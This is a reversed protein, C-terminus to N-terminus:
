RLPQDRAIDAVAAPLSVYDLPSGGLAVIRSLSITRQTGCSELKHAPLVYFHWQSMDLPDVSSKDKHALLAFVYVDAQRKRALEYANSTADFARTPAITFSIRSLQRQSWTQVYASSKVEIKLGSEMVLDYAAWEERLSATSVGLARAVIFEAFVGRNANSVLDSAFWSWFERLEIGLPSGGLHLAESGDKRTAVHPGIWEQAPTSDSLGNM